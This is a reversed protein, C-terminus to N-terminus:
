GEPYTIEDLGGTLWQLWALVGYAMDWGAGECDFVRRAHRLQGNVEVDCVRAVVGDMPREAMLGLTWRAAAFVGVAFSESVMADAMRESMPRARLQRLREVATLLEVRIQEPQRAWPGDPNLGFDLQPQQEARRPAPASRSVPRTVLEPAASARSEGLRLGEAIVPSFEIPAMVLVGDWRRDSVGDGYPGGGVLVGM